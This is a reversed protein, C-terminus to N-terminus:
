AVEVPGKGIYVPNGITRFGRLLTTPRYRQAFLFTEAKGNACGLVLIAENRVGDITTWGDHVVTIRLFDPLHRRVFDYAEDLAVDLREDVFRRVDRGAEGETIVFPALPGGSDRIADIGRDLGHFVLDM